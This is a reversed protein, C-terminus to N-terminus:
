IPYISEVVGRFCSLKVVHWLNFDILDWEFKAQKLYPDLKASVVVKAIRCCEEYATHLSTVNYDCLNISVQALDQEEIYWGLAKM